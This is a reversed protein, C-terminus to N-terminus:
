GSYRGGTDVILALESLHKPEITERKPTMDTKVVEHKDDQRAQLIEATTVYRYWVRTRPRRMTEIMSRVYDGFRRGGIKVFGVLLVFIAVVVTILLALGVDAYKWTFGIIVGGIVIMVFQRTTIPGIIRDEVDIFQPAVFQNM